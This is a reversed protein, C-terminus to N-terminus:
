SKDDPLGQIPASEQLRLLACGLSTEPEVFVQAVSEGCGDFEHRRHPWVIAGRYKLWETRAAGRLSLRGSLALSIQIAHHEHAQSRGAARGIWLSGGSWLLVRGIGATVRPQPGRPNATKNLRRGGRMVFISGAAVFEIVEGM